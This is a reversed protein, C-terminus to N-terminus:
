NVHPSRGNGANAIPIQPDSEVVMRGFLLRSRVSELGSPTRSQKPFGRELFGSIQSSGYLDKSVGRSM